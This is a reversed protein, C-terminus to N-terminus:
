AILRFCRSFYACCSISIFSEYRMVIELNSGLTFSNEVNTKIIVKNETSLTTNNAITKTVNNPIILILWTGNENITFPRLDMTTSSIIAPKNLRNKVGPIVM